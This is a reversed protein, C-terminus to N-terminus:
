IVGAWRLALACEGLLAPTLKQLIFQWMQVAAPNNFIEAQARNWEEIIAHTSFGNFQPDIPGINSQKGMIIENACCALMTGCSMSIMPVIARIDTGFKSRM